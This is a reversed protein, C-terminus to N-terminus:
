RCSQAVVVSRALSRDYSCLMALEAAATDTDQGAAAPLISGAADGVAINGRRKDFDGGVVKGAEHADRGPVFAHEIEM